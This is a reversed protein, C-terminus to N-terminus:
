QLGTRHLTAIDPISRRTNKFQMVSTRSIARLGHLTSLRAIEKWSELRRGRPDQPSELMLTAGTRCAGNDRWEAGVVIATVLWHRRKGHKAAPIGLPTLKLVHLRVNGAPLRHLSAVGTVRENLLKESAAFSFPSERM